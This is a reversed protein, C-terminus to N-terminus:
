GIARHVHRGTRADETWSKTEPCYHLQTYMPRYVVWNGVTFVVKFIDPGIRFSDKRKLGGVNKMVKMM